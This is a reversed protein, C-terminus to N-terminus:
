VEKRAMFQSTLKMETIPFSAGVAQTAYSLDINGLDVNAQFARGDAARCFVAGAHMALRRLASLTGADAKVIDCTYTGTRTVAEDYYGNVAGGAHARAEFSKEYTDSLVLNFPLEVYESGWDFRMVRVPLEYEFDSFAIDGDATRVAVRYTLEGTGFPAYPDTATDEPSLDALVLEYGTPTMRYLEYSDGDAWDEPEGFTVSVSRGGSDPTVTVDSPLPAQHAWAVTFQCSAERSALGAVQEIASARVTYSCGDILDTGEPLEIEAIYTEGGAPHADLAAQAADAAAQANDRALLAEEYGEDGPELGDLADQAEDLADNADSLASALQARIITDGWTADDWAVRMAQTWVSDGDLQDRDGGPGEFTAGLSYCTAVITSSPDDTYMEITAPQAALTPECAMEFVPASAISVTVENSDTLGGGCGASVYLTLSTADGYREPPISAHCLSGEGSELATNPEGSEHVHWEVQDMDHEVTWWLEIADGKAIASPASLLVSSPASYPTVYSPESYASYLTKDGEYYTRASVYVTVGEELDKLHYTATSAWDQSQSEDDAWDFEDTSPRSSSRWADPDSSWSLECGTRDGSWGVVVVASRGDEGPDLSVIGCRVDPNDLMSPMQVTVTPSYASFSGDEDNYRRARLFYTKALDLGRLHIVQTQKWDESQPEDDAWQAQMTSPGQNSRWAGSYDSWSLETGTNAGDETWGIVVTAGRGDASPEASVIGCSDNAATDSDPDATRFAYTESWEGTVTAGGATVYRRAWVYYTTSPDLGRLYSVQKKPWDSDGSPETGWTANFTNPQSNSLLALEDTSWAIETGTNDSDEDILVTLTAGNGGADSICSGVKCQDDVASACVAKAIDSYPSFTDGMYRRARIYYTTGPMLTTVSLTVQKDWAKLPCDVGAQTYQHTSIDADDSSWAGSSTAWSLETGTNPNDENYGVVVTVSTGDANPTASIVGCRDDHASAAAFEVRPGLNGDYRNVDESEDYPDDADRYRRFCAYYTRGSELEDLTVTMSGTRRSDSYTEKQPGSGSKWADPNESWQLECGTNPTSDAWRMTVKASEGDPQPVVVLPSLTATCVIAPRETFVCDARMPSSYTTYNGNVAKVRYYIHEGPKPDADDYTDYLSKCNADDVAGSVDSWSGGEGHRRQLQVSETMYGVVIPVKVRGGSSKRDCTVPGILPSAPWGVSLTKSPTPSDGALGRAYAKATLVVGKGASLSALYPSLSITTSYEALKTSTWNLKTERSGDIKALEISVMTDYRDRADKGEDTKVTLTANSTQKDFSWSLEPARPKALKLTAPGAWAGDLTRGDDARTHRGRVWVKVADLKPSKVPYFSNRNVGKFDSLKQEDSTVSGTLTNTDSKDSAAWWAQQSTFRRHNNNDAMEVPIKWSAKYVDGDKVITLGTVKKNPTQQKDALAEVHFAIDSQTTSSGKAVKFSSPHEARTEARDYEKSRNPKLTTTGKAFTQGHNWLNTGEISYTLTLAQKKENEIVAKKVTVTAKQATHSVEVTLTCKYGENGDVKNTFTMTGM